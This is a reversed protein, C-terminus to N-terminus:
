LAARLELRQEDDLLDARLSATGIANAEARMAKGYADAENIGGLFFGPGNEADMILGDIGFAQAIQGVKAAEARADAVTEARPVHWGWVEIGKQHCRNILDAFLQATAGTTNSYAAAGEAIKVWIASLDARAAKEVMLKVSGEAAVVPALKWVYMSRKPM